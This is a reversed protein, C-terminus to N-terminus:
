RGRSTPSRGCGLGACGSADSLARGAPMGFNPRGEPPGSTSSAAWTGEILACPGGTPAPPSVLPLAHSLAPDCPRPSLSRRDYGHDGHHGGSDRCCPSATGGCCGSRRCRLRSRGVGAVVDVVDRRPGLLREAGVGLHRLALGRGVALAGHLSGQDDVALVGLAVRHRRALQRLELGLGDLVLGAGLRDLALVLAGLGGLLGLQQRDEDLEVLARVVVERGRHHGVANPASSRCARSPGSRGAACCWGSGARRCAHRVVVRHPHGVEGGLVEVRHEVGLLADGLPDPGVERAGVALGAEVDGAVRHLVHVLLHGLAGVGDGTRRGRPDLDGM